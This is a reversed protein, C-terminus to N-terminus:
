ASHRLHPSSSVSPSPRLNMHQRISEVSIRITGGIVVAEVRGQEVWRYVTRRSVSLVDMVEVANLYRKTTTALDIM